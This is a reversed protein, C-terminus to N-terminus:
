LLKLYDNRRRGAREGTNRFYQPEVRRRAIDPVVVPRIRGPVIKADDRGTVRNGAHAIEAAFIGGVDQPEVRRCAIDTVIVPRVRGPV